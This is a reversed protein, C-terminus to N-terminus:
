FSKAQVIRSHFQRHYIRFHSKTRSCYKYERSNIQSFLLVDEFINEDYNEKGGPSGEENYLEAGECDKGSPQSIHAHFNM